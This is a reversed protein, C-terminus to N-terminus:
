TTIKKVRKDLLTKYNEDSKPIDEGDNLYYEEVYKNDKKFKKNIINQNNLESACLYHLYCGSKNEIKVYFDRIIDGCYECKYTKM